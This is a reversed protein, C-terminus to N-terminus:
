AVSCFKIGEKGQIAGPHLPPPAIWPDLKVRSMDFTTTGAAQLEDMLQIRVEPAVRAIVIGLWFMQHGLARWKRPGFVLHDMQDHVIRQQCEFIFRM